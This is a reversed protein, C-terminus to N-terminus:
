NQFRGQQRMEAATLAVDQGRIGAVAFQHVIPSFEPLKGKLRIPYKILPVPSPRENKEFTLARVDHGRAKLAPALHVFQGPFNQHVFLIRMGNERRKQEARRIQRQSKVRPLQGFKKGMAM